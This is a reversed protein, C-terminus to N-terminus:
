KRKFFAVGGAVLLLLGGAMLVSNGIKEAKALLSKRWAVLAALRRDL